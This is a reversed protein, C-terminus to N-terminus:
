WPPAARSAPSASTPLAYKTGLWVGKVNAAMAADCDAEGMQHIKGTRLIGAGHVHVSNRGHARVDDAMATDVSAGLLARLETRLSEPFATTAM